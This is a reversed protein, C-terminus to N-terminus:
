SFVSAARAGVFNRGSGCGAKHCLNQDSIVTLYFLIIILFSDTFLEVELFFM